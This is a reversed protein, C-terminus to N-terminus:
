KVNGKYKLGFPDLMAQLNRAAACGRIPYNSTVLANNKVDEIVSQDFFQTLPTIAGEAYGRAYHVKQERDYVVLLPTASLWGGVRAREFSMSEVAYGSKKLERVSDSMKGIIIVKEFIGKTAKRKALHQVLPISCSCGEAIFHIANVRSESQLVTFPIKSDDVSFVISHWSHLSMM